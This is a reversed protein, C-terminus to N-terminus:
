QLAGRQGQRPGYAREIASPARVLPPAPLPALPPEWRTGLPM